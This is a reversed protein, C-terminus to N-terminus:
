RDQQACSLSQELPNVRASQSVFANLENRCLFGRMDYEPALPVVVGSLQTCRVASGRRRM